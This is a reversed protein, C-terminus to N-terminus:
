AARLSSPLIQERQIQRTHYPEAFSIKVIIRASFAIVSYSSPWILGRLWTEPGIWWWARAHIPSRGMVRANPDKATQRRYIRGPAAMDKANMQRPEPVECPTGIMPFSYGGPNRAFGFFWRVRGEM